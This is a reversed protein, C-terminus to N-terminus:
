KEDEKKVSNRCKDAFIEEFYIAFLFCGKKQSFPTIIGFYAQIGAKVNDYAKGRAWFRLESQM